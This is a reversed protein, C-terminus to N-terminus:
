DRSQYIDSSSLFSSSIWFVILFYFFSKIKMYLITYWMVFYIVNPPISTLLLANWLNLYGVSIFSTFMPLIFVDLFHEYPLFLNSYIVVIDGDTCSVSSTPKAIDASTWLTCKPMFCLWWWSCSVSSTVKDFCVKHVLAQIPLGVDLADQLQHSEKIDFGM